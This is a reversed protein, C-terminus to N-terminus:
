ICAISNHLVSSEGLLRPVIDLKNVYNIIELNKYDKISIDGNFSLVLPAGFTIVKIKMNPFDENLLLGAIIAYGGGLSHGCIRLISHKKQYIEIRRKIKDYVARLSSYM